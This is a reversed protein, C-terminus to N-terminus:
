KNPSLMITYTGTKFNLPGEVKAVSALESIFNLLVEKGQEKFQLERGEFKMVLKVRDGKSLFKMCNKMKVALDGSDTSPRLRVEKTETASSKAKKEKANKELEYKYKSWGIIRVLPPSADPNILLLDEKAEDALAQARSTPMVGLPTREPGAGLVFVERAGFDDQFGSFSPTSRAPPPPAQQTSAKTKAAVGQQSSNSGGNNSNNNNNNSSSRGAGGAAAAGGKKSLLDVYKTLKGDAEDMSDVDLSDKADQDQYGKRRSAAAVVHQRRVDQLFLLVDKKFTSTPTTHPCVPRSAGAPAAARGGRSLVQM